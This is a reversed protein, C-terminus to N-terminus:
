KVGARDLGQHALLEERQTALEAGLVHAHHRTVRGYVPVGGYDAARSLNQGVDREAVAGVCVHVVYDHVLEVVDRVLLATDGPLDRQERQGLDTEDQHAGSQTVDARIFLKQGLARARFDHRHTGDIAGDGQVKLVLLLHQLLGRLGQDVLAARGHIDDVERLAARCFSGLAEHRQVEAAFVLLLHDGFRQLAFAEAAWVAFLHQLQEPVADANM